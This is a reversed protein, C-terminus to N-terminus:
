ENYELKTVRNQNLLIRVIAFMTKYQGRLLRLFASFLISLYIAWIYKPLFKKTFILKSRMAFYDARFGKGISAGGKHYIISRPECVLKIDLSRARYALDLEEFYLFYDESLLGVREIVERSFFMSAGSIYDISQNDTTNKQLIASIKGTFKNYIGGGLTQITQDSYNRITSGIISLRNKQAFAVLYRLSDKEIVTDNNLLWIYEWDSCKLLYRLVLNNGGAFGLNRSSRIILHKNINITNEVENATCEMYTIPKRIPPFSLYRLPNANSIFLDLKGDAWAKICEVSNDQSNNDCIIVRYNPYDNRMVSELCEITDLYGNWNIIIINVKPYTM